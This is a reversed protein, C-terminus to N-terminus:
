SEEIQKQSDQDEYKKSKLEIKDEQTAKPVNIEVQIEQINEDKIKSQQSEM